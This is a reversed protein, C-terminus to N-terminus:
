CPVAEEVNSPAPLEISFTCGRGPENCRARIAGKMEQIAIACFHLGFGHGDEKTTFGETFIQGLHERQIGEGHDSVEIRVGGEDGARAMLSVERREEPLDGVADKANALLNVIVQLLKSRDVQVEPLGDFRRVLRVEHRDFSAKTLQVADELLKNLTVKEQLSAGTAYQQQTAVIQNAHRVNNRLDDIEKLLNTREQDCHNALTTIYKPLARAQQDDDLAASFREAHEGFLDAVNRLRQSKSDQVQKDITSALVNINTLVNGVNHLVSSAADAMGAHRSLEILQSRTESLRDLMRDFQDALKGVEDRRSMSIRANDNGEKTIEAAHETLATVPKIVVRQLLLLVAALLALGTLVLNWTAYRTADRAYMTVKRDVPVHVLLSPLGNFGVVTAYVRLLTEDQTVIKPGAIPLESLSDRCADPLLGDRIQWVDLDLGARGFLRELRDGPFLRLLVLTRSEVRDTRNTNNPIVCKAILAPGYETATVSGSAVDRAESSQWGSAGFHRKAFETQDTRDLFSGDTTIQGVVQHKSDFVYGFDFERTSATLCPPQPHNSGAQDILRQVRGRSAWDKCLAVLRDVNGQLVLSCRGMEAVAQQRELEEFHPLVVRNHIWFSSAAFLAFVGVIVIVVKAGLSM